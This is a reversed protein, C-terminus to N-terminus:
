TLGEDSMMFTFCVSGIKIPGQITIYGIVANEALTDHELAETPVNRKTKCM